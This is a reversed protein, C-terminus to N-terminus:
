ITFRLLLRVQNEDYNLTQIDTSEQNSNWLELRVSTREAFRYTLDLFFRTLDDTGIQQDRYTYDGGFGVATRGGAQWNWRFAAGAFSEDPLPLGIATTRNVREEGFVRLTITSKSLELTNAWEARKRVFRDSAGPRDLTGDLDDSDGLPSRTQVLEGRSTPSETYTLETRGRRLQYSFRGRYSDGYSRNGTAIELDLRTSPRYQFGAEWFDADMAASEFEDIPTEMGGTVFLRASNSVWYGLNLSAVQYEWPESFEYELRRYEYDAQWAIGQQRTTNGLTFSARGSNSPQTLDTTTLNEIPEDYDVDVYSLELLVDALRFEQEWYPRVELVRSNVRNGSIPLNSTPVSAIPTVISQFSVASFYAFLADEALVTTLSADVLHFVENFESNDQYFFAEPRYRIDADLIRRSNKTFVFEPALTYVTENQEMDADLFLNDTWVVGVDAILEFEWPDARSGAPNLLGISLIVAFAVPVSRTRTNENLEVRM